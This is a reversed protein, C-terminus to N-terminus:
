MQFFARENKYLGDGIAAMLAAGVSGGFQRHPTVVPRGILDTLTRIWAANQSPGGTMFLRDSKFGAQDLEELKKRVDLSTSYLISAAIEKANLGKWAERCEQADTISVYHTKEYDIGDRTLKELREFKASSSDVYEDIRANIFEGYQTFAFIAAWKGESRLYPDVLMGAKIAADRNTTVFLGAWSTGCSLLLNGEDLAGISRASAPHDFSGLVWKASPSLGTKAAFDPRLTGLVTQEKLIPPLMEERIGFWELYDPSYRCTRQDQLYFTTAASPEIGWRGTACFQLYETTMAIRGLRSFLEPRDKKLWALHTLPFIELYPWGVRDYVGAIDFGPLYESTKGEIRRDEWSLANCIPKDHDDLFVTNGSASATSIAKIDSPSGSYDHILQWLLDTVRDVFFDAPFERISGDILMPARVSASVLVNMKEDTIVGKLNSTGLDLGIYRPSTSM